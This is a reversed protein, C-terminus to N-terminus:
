NHLSKLKPFREELKIMFRYRTRMKSWVAFEGLSGISLVVMFVGTGAIVLPPVSVLSGLAGAGWGSAALKGATSHWNMETHCAHSLSVMLGKLVNIVDMSPRVIIYALRIALDHCNWYVPM